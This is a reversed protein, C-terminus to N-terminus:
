RGGRDAPPSQLYRGAGFNPEAINAPVELGLFTLFKRASMVQVGKERAEEQIQKFRDFVEQKFLRRPDDAEVGSAVKPASSVVLYETEFTMGPGKLSRAKLDLYRDVKVGQSELLRIFQENDDLGDGDIDIIGAFAIRIKRNPTWSPNFIKGGARIPSRQPDIEQTIYAESQREGVKTVEIAGQLESPIDTPLQDRNYVTGDLGVLVDNRAEADSLASQSTPFISFTIGPRLLDKRGLNIVVTRGERRLIEGRAQNLRQDPIDRRTDFRKLTKTLREVEFKLGRIENKQDQVQGTLTAVEEQGFKQIDTYAKEYNTKFTDKEKKAADAWRQQLTREKAAFSKKVSDLDERLKQNDLATKQVLANLQRFRTSLSDAARQRDGILTPVTKAPTVDGTIPSWGFDSPDVFNSQVARRVNAVIPNIIAQNEQTGRLKGFEAAAGEASYKDAGVDVGLALQLTMRRLSEETLNQAAQTARKEATAKAEELKKQGDFGMYTAVGLALTAIIFFVLTIILGIKSEGAQTTPENAM